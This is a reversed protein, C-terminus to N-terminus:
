MLNVDDFPDEEEEEEDKLTELSDIDEDDLPDKKSVGDVLDGDIDLEDDEDKLPEDNM